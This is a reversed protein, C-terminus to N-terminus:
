SLQDHSLQLNYFRLASGGLVADQESASWTSVVDRVLDMVQRYSAALRCVPWDSGVLLRDCGFASAAIELYPTLQAATWTRWDAETVLGSLKCCVHPCGAMTRIQQTWDALRGHEVDPKGLHDLVFRQDPFARVFAIAEAFQREYILVDYPLDFRGLAAIGRRFAPRALFGPPESQVIHRVGCFKPDTSFATLQDAVDPAQLDVWGVVGGVFPHDHALALLDRTETLTQRAQVSVCGDFGAAALEHRLDGPQFDRRLASMRDDIWEYELPDYRWFHQHADIRLSRPASM